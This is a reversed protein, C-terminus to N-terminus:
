VNNDGEEYNPDKIELEGRIFVLTEQCQAILDELYDIVVIQAEEFTDYKEEGPEFYTEPYENIRTDCDEYVIKFPM